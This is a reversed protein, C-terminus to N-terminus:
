RLFLNEEEEAEKEEEKKRLKKPSIFKSRSSSSTKTRSSNNKYIKKVELSSLISNSHKEIFNSYYISPIEEFYHLSLHFIITILSIKILNNERLSTEIKFKHLSSSPEFRSRLLHLQTLITISIYEGRRYGRTFSVSTATFTSLCIPKVSYKNPLLRTSPVFYVRTSLLHLEITRQSGAM